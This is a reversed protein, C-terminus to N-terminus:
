FDYRLAFQLERPPSLTSTIRGFTTGNIALSPISFSTQNFANFAEARFTLFQRESWPMKFKKSLALDTSFYAPSRFVNRSGTEGHKPYRLANRAAVPDDFYQIAGTEDAHIRVNLGSRDGIVIAPVNYIFGVPFSNTTSSLAFGSRANFIGSITWGGVFVDLLKPIDSGFARGRGFPLEFIGNLNFLHRIDFDSPGYCADVNTVDCLLGGTVTNVVSSQNDKSNSLTYNADFELGKSFRKQLSILLGDYKSHGQNTIYVNSSFQSSLGVNPALLGLAYLDQLTDSTDGNRIFTTRRNAIYATCTRGVLQLCPVGYTAIAAANMQNELFPQPTVATAAVGAQLQAQVANFADFLFQGSAPDKFNLVQAADSQTFLKRGLRKVYNVDLLFNGPLERQIGVSFTYSYPVEFDQAISYNFEGTENGVGVGGQVFPTFPTTIVPAANQVPLTSFGTFRPDNILNTRISTSRGFTTTASNDFIYSLQDQIFTLGGAVRDYVKSAGARIVTKRKGFIAGMLGGEFSPNYAISARPAFNNKDGEYVPRVDNGNGILSYTLFPEASPGSIGAAANAIRKSLLQQYDVNPAAQFGNKEYPPSYYQYRLGLTVTLDSRARWNDQVYYEYEKYVYDRLKGTGPPQPAGSPDYVFNTGISSYRGLLLGFFADYNSTLTTNANINGPRFTNDLSIGAITPFNLDNSLTSKSDIPKFQVGFTLTHSGKSYTADDRITPTTVQRGQTSIGAFPATLGSFTFSNPFTPANTNPFDLISKAVGFTAQNFLSPSITWSHGFVYSYSSDVILPGGVDGPFQQAVSNVTDTQNRRSITFRSFIKQNRTANVDFRTTYTNDSRRSPANFRFGGTNIGDGATLDNPLPYRSNIISLLAQNPGIGAPDIAAVQAASLYSICQPTTNARSTAGCGATANVYGLQGNRFTQLPVIRLYSVGQADRRGEYDFFFFIRDKGSKFAPGTGEGFNPYPLPGGFSGGFQNRTLQPRPVGNKNNFFSNAATTATRNYERLNGHFTNTGSKTAIQIQGGSSRGEGASPNATVARFEQVSDIPANATTAFAQGTAQDNVDIGDVTINGQDARAGTISGTRNGGGAGVNSGVAGPQLGILAAPSSRIQIPLERLQREGIVNGVSADTTNLTAEGATTTVTVTGSVQGPQLQANQTETRGIGLKVENIIYTQFGDRTFTLRYGSGPQINTFNYVGQDNTTTTQERATKTDALIVQVGPVLAGNADNVVGTVGSVAQAAIVIPSVLLLLSMILWSGAKIISKGTEHNIKRNM